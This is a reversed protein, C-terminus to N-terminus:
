CVITFYVCYLSVDIVHVCTLSGHKAFIIAAVCLLLYYCHWTNLETSPFIISTNESLLQELVALRHNSQFVTLM